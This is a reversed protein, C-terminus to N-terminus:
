PPPCTRTAMVGYLFLYLSTFREVGGRSSGQIRQQLTTLDVRYTREMDILLCETVSWFKDHLDPDPTTYNMPDLDPDPTKHNRHDLDPDTHLQITALIWIRIRLQSTGLILNRLQVYLEQSGSGYELIWIRVQIAGLIWILINLKLVCNFNICIKNNILIHM